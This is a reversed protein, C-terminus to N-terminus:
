SDSNQPVARLEMLPLNLPENKKNYRVIKELQSIVKSNGSYTDLQKNAANITTKLDNKEKIYVFVVYGYLIVQSYLLANKRINEPVDDAKMSPLRKATGMLVHYMVDDIVPKSTVKKLLANLEKINIEICGM